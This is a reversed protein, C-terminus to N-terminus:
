EEQILAQYDALLKSAEPKDGAAEAEAIQKALRRKNLERNYKQLRHVQTYAELRIEHEDVSSYEEEGRLSLIKVDNGREKLTKAITDISSRPNKQLIEFVSQNAVSVDKLDVDALAERTFPFALFIELLQNEITAQKSPTLKAMVKAKQGPDPAISSSMVGATKTLKLRISEESVVLRRALKKIYHDREVDDRLVKILPLLFDSAQKKGLASALDFRREAQDFLYDVAYKAEKVARQWAKKDQRVLEDPDKAGGASYNIVSLRVDLSVAVEIARQTARIGAEDNDFALKINKTLRSIIKLQQSTLATGSVAVVNAVGANYLGVVDMNGEVVIAEDLQRIAEKAQSLGFIATSKNYIATQPTNIYKATDTAEGLVRGSFGIARGQVDFIPFLIRGRFMDYVNKAGPKRSVLGAALLEEAKFDKKALYDTLAQWSDPGYGIHYIKITDKKLGRGRALYELAKPNKALSAHYYDVALEVAEYLRSKNDTNVSGQGRRPKLQVGARKALIELAERFEVGEMVQVFTFIDGGQGSSFDHWIGKEPSVMLSPTKEQKFPSLGKFNRGAPKLQVYSGVVEVVDLRQKIEDVEDM